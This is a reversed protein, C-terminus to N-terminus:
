GSKRLWKTLDKPFYRQLVITYHESGSVCEEILDHIFAKLRELHIRDIGDMYLLFLITHALETTNYERELAEEKEKEIM